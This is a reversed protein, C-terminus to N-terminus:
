RKEMEPIPKHCLLTVPPVGLSNQDVTLLMHMSDIVSKKKKGWEKESMPSLEFVSQLM